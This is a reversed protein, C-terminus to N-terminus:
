GPVNLADRRRALLREGAGKDLEVLPAIIEVKLLVAMSVRFDLFQRLMAFAHQHEDIDMAPLVIRLRPVRDLEVASKKRESLKEVAWSPVPSVFDETHFLNFRCDGEREFVTRIWNRVRELKRAIYM